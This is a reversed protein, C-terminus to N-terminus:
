DVAALENVPPLQAFTARIAELAARLADHSLRGGLCIRVHNVPREAGAIFPDSATVAVGRAALARILGEETWQEPVRLWASPSVPHSGAVFPALVEQVILQRARMEQRQATVLAAATGDEIWRTAMEAMAPVGSWSTVRLISAVRIVYHPPVVLYGVRLGTM